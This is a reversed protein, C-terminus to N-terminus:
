AAISRKEATKKRNLFAPQFLLYTQRLRAIATGFAEVVECVVLTVVSVLMMADGVAGQGRNGM